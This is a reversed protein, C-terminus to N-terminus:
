AEAHRIAGGRRGAKSVLVTSQPHSGHSLVLSQRRVASPEARQPMRRRCPRCPGAANDFAGGRSSQRIRSLQNAKGYIAGTLYSEAGRRRGGTAGDVYANHRHFRTATRGLNSLGHGVLAVGLGHRGRVHEPMAAGLGVRQLYPQAGRDSSYYTWLEAPDHETLNTRLLYCGEWAVRLKNRNLRYSFTGSSPSVEIEVLRWAKPAKQRAADLELLEERTLRM